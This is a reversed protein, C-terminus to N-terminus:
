LEIFALSRPAVFSTYCEECVWADPPSFYGDPAGGCGIKQQCIDCHEHDWGGSVVEGGTPIEQSYRTAMWGGGPAPFRAMDSPELHTRQWQRRESLVLEASEGWYGDIFPYQAGPRLASLEGVQDPHFSCTRATADVHRFRGWIFRGAGLYLGGIWGEGVWSSPDYHGTCRDSKVQAITM